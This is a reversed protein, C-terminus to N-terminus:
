RIEGLSKSGFACLSTLTVLQSRQQLICRMSSQFLFCPQKNGRVKLASLKSKMRGCLSYLKLGAAIPSNSLASLVLDTPACIGTNCCLMYHVVQSECSKKKKKTHTGEQWKGGHKRGDKKGKRQVQVEFLLVNMFRQKLSLLSEPKLKLSRRRLQVGLM